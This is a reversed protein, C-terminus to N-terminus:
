GKPAAAFAAARKAAAEKDKKANKAALIAMIVGFVIFGGAPQRILPDFLGL